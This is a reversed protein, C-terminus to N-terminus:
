IRIGMVLIDDTQDVQGKWDLIRKSLIKQQEDMDKDQIEDLLEFLGAIKLKKRNPGGFQDPYGDSFFYFVDGPFIDMEHQNYPKNKREGGVSMRTGRFFERKGNRYMVLPRVASAWKLKGEKFNFSCVALDMGDKTAFDEQEKKMMYIISKDLESIIDAPEHINKIEFIERLLQQGILSLFAGPVGHGTCDGCAVLVNDGKKNIWYFDGSVIDRPMYIVFSDPLLTKFAIDEPLVADQIRKAYNISDTIDKNTAELKEKQTMVEKTRVALESELEEQRALYRRERYKVYWYGIAILVLTVVLWFWVKKWYPTKIVITLYVQDESAQLDDNYAKVRLYYEGDTLKNIKIENIPSIESWENDYNELIYSFQVDKPHKLSLGRLLINFDYTGPSLLLNEVAGKAEGNVKIESIGVVPAVLNVVDTTGNYRLLGTESGYWIDNGERAIASKAYAKNAGHEQDFVRISATEIDIRSLAGNHTVWLMNHADEILGYCFNSALGETTTFQEFGNNLFRFVGDGYTALYIGGDSLKDIHYVNILSGSESYKHGSLQGDQLMSLESSESGIYLIADQEDYFLCNITNHSLGSSIDYHNLSNMENIEYLGNYTGVWILEGNGSITNIANGLHDDTLGYPIFEGLEHDFSFLGNASTGVWLQRFKDMYMCTIKKAEELVLTDILNFKGGRLRLIKNDSAIFMENSVVLIDQIPNETSRLYYTFVEKTHKFVGSGYSGLWITGERDVFTTQITTSPLGNEENYHVIKNKGISIKFMGMNHSSVYLNGEDDTSVGKILIDEPLEIKEPTSKNMSIQYLGSQNTGVAFGERGLSVISQANVEELYRKSFLLKDGEESLYYLEVGQGTAILIENDELIAIDNVIKGEFQDRFYVQTGSKLDICIVGGNQSSLWIVGEEDEAIGTIVSNVEEKLDYGIIKDETLYSVGGEKHGIWVIGTKSRYLESIFDERLGDPTYKMKFSIGDFIGLGEGTGVILYGRADQVISYIFPDNLGVETGYGQFQYFQAHFAPALLFLCIFLYYRLVTM